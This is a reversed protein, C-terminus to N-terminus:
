RKENITIQYIDDWYTQNLWEVIEDPKMNGFLQHYLRHLKEEVICVGEIGKKRESRSRPIIHHRTLKEKRNKDKM